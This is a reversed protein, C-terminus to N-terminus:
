NNINIDVGDIAKALMSPLMINKQYYEICQLSADFLIDFYMSAMYEEKTQPNNKELEVNEFVEVEINETEWSENQVQRNEIKKVTEIEIIKEKYGNGVSIMTKFNEDFFNIMNLFFPKFDNKLKEKKELLEKNTIRSM